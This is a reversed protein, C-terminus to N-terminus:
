PKQKRESGGVFPRLTVVNAVLMPNQEWCGKAIQVYDVAGEAKFVVWLGDSAVILFRDQKPNVEYKRGYMPSLHYWYSAHEEKYSWLDGLSRAVNVLPHLAGGEEREWVVRGEDKTSVM